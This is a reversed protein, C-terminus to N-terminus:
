MCLCVYVFIHIAKYEVRKSGAKKHGSHIYETEGTAPRPATYTQQTKQTSPRINGAQAESRMDIEKVRFCRAASLRRHRNRDKTGNHDPTKSACIDSVRCHITEIKSLVTKFHSM